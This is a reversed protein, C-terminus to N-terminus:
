LRRRDTLALPSDITQPHWTHGGDQTRYLEDGAAGGATWGIERTVFYVLEGIPISLQTWTNGGDTTKFLTGMSFNSSTVRKIVLWGTQTDLLHLYVTAALSNVDRSKFLSLPTIQWTSGNDSTQAVAYTIFGPEDSNALVLWGHQADVFSVARIISQDLNSPTINDWSQGGNKTWYLHQDILLWGEEPSVLHFGQVDGVKAEAYSQHWASQQETIHGALPYLM